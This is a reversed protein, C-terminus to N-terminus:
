LQYATTGHHIKRVTYRTLRAHGSNICNAVIFMHLLSTLYNVCRFASLRTHGTFQDLGKKGGGWLFVSFLPRAMRSMGQALTPWIPPSINTKINTLILTSTVLVRISVLILTKETNNTKEIQLTLSSSPVVIDRGMFPRLVLLLTAECSLSESHQMEHLFFAMTRTYSLMPLM